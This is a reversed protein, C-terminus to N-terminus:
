LWGGGGTLASLIIWAIAGSALAVAIEDIKPWNSMKVKNTM